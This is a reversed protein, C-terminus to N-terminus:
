LMGHLLDFFQDQQFLNMGYKRYFMVPYVPHEIRSARDKIGSLQNKIGTM